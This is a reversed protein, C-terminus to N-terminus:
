RRSRTALVEIEVPVSMPVVRGSADMFGAVVRYKGPALPRPVGFYRDRGGWDRVIMRLEGPELVLVSDMPECVRPPRVPRDDEALLEYDWVCTSRFKKKFSDKSDNFMSAEFSVRDGGVFRPPTVRVSFRIEGPPTTIGPIEEEGPREAFRACGAVALVAISLLISTPRAVRQLEMLRRM